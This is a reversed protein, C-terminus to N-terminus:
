TALGRGPQSTLAACRCAGLAAALDDLAERADLTNALKVRDAM